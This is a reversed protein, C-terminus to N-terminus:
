KCFQRHPVPLDLFLHHCRILYGAGSGAALAIVACLATIITKNM